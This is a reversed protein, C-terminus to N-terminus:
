NSCYFETEPDQLLEAIDVLEKFWLQYAVLHFHIGLHFINDNCFYEQPIGYLDGKWIADKIEAISDFWNPKEVPFGHYYPILGVYEQFNFFFYGREMRRIEDWYLDVIDKFLKRDVNKAEDYAWNNCVDYLTIGFNSVKDGVNREAWQELGFPNRLWNISALEEGDKSVSIDLSM